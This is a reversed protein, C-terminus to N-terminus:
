RTSSASLTPTRSKQENVVRSWIAAANMLGSALASATSASLCVGGDDGLLRFFGHYEHKFGLTMLLKHVQAGLAADDGHPLGGLDEADGLHRRPAIEILESGGALDHAFVAADAQGFDRM